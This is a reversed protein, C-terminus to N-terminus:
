GDTGYSACDTSEPGLRRIGPLKWTSPGGRGGTHAVILRGGDGPNISFVSVACVNVTELDNM